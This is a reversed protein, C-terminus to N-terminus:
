RSEALEILRRAEARYEDRIDGDQMLESVLDLYFNDSELYATLATLSDKVLVSVKGELASLERAQRYALDLREGRLEECYGVDLMPYQVELWGASRGALWCDLTGMERASEEFDGVALRVADDWARETVADYKGKYFDRQLDTMAGATREADPFVRMKVNYAVVYPKPYWWNNGGGHNPANEFRERVSEIYERKQKTNM